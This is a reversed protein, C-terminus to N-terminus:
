RMSSPRPTRMATVQGESGLEVARPRRQQQAGICALAVSDFCVQAMRQLNGTLLLRQRKLQARRSVERSQPGLAPFPVPCRVQKGRYVSGESLAELCQIKDFGLRQDIFQPASSANSRQPLQGRQYRVCMRQLRRNQQRLLPAMAILTPRVRAVPCGTAGRYVAVDDASVQETEVQV